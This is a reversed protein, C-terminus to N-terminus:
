LQPQFWTAYGPNRSSPNPNLNPNPYPHPHPSPSTNSNPDPNPHPNPNLVCARSRNVQVGHKRELDYLHEHWPLGGHSLVMIEGSPDVSARELLGEEVIQRAPLWSKVTEELMETFYVGTLASAEEFRADEAAKDLKPENWRPNLRGVRCSLDSCMKYRKTDAIEIGNDIADISEILDYYRLNTQNTVDFSLQCEKM